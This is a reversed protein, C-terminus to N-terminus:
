VCLHSFNLFLYWFLPCDRVRFRDTPVKNHCCVPIKGNWIHTIANNGVGGGIFWILRDPSSRYDAAKTDMHDDPLWQSVWARQCTDRTKRQKATIALKLVHCWKQKWTYSKNLAGQQHESDEWQNIESRPVDTPWWPEIQRCPAM